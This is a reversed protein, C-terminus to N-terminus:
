RTTNFSLAGSDHCSKFLFVSLGDFHPTQLTKNSILKILTDDVWRDM